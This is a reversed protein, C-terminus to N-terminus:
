PPISLRMGVKLDKDNRMAASNANMIDRWRNGDGYVKVAIRSLSDGKQVYYVRTKRANRVTTIKKVRGTEPPVPPLADEVVLAMTTTTTAPARWTPRPTPVVNPTRLKAQVIPVSTPTLPSSIRTVPTTDVMPVLAVTEVTRVTNSALAANLTDIRVRMDRMENRLYENEMRLASNEKEMAMMRQAGEAQQPILTSAFSLKAMRVREEIMEKKDTEPRLELYRQYHFVARVYDRTPKDLLFALELHAIAPTPQSDLAKKFLAIAADEDGFKKLEIAKRIMPNTEDRQDMRTTRPSCGAGAVGALLIVVVCWPIVKNLISKM